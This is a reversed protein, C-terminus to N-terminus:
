PFTEGIIYEGHKYSRGKGLDDMLGRVDRDLREIQFQCISVVAHLRAKPWTIDPPHFTVGASSVIFRIRTQEERQKEDVLLSAAQHPSNHAYAWNRGNKLDQHTRAHGSESPFTTYKSSLPGLESSVYPRMYAVCIGTFFIGYFQAYEDSDHAILFECAVIVEQFTIHALVLRKLARVKREKLDM